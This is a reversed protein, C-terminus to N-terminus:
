NEAVKKPKIKRNEKDAGTCRCRTPVPSILVRDGTMAASVVPADCLCPWVYRVVAYPWGSLWLWVGVAGYVTMEWLYLYM